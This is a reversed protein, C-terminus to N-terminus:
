CYDEVAQWQTENYRSGHAFGAPLVEEIAAIDTESLKLDGALANQELHEVSKTGPIPIIHDGLRMTWAIALTAPAHGMQRALDAFRMFAAMNKSVNPEQFRPMQKRFEDSPIKDLDLPHDGIMGRALPSFPVFATGLRACAQILGLEPQRTWLSYESQVARVPHLKAADELTSPAIESFGFGGIKGEEILRALTEVVEEIPRSQERRHMYFLDVHDVNLRKLSAELEARIYAGENSFGRTEGTVIGAKTTVSFKNPHDKLYAGVIEETLGMGYINATDLHTIGLEFARDLVRHCQAPEAGGYAGAFSMCGLGIAGIKPGDKGLNRQHM